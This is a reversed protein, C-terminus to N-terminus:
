YTFTVFCGNWEFTYATVKMLNVVIEDLENRDNLNTVFKYEYLLLIFKSRLTKSVNRQRKLKWGKDRPLM